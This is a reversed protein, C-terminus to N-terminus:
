TLRLVHALRDLFPAQDPHIRKRAEDLTLLEAGDIEWSACKPVAGAPLEGAFCHVRKKSKTYDIANLPILPGTVEVGTEERTERRAADELAEGEDPIGKPIGWPSTRNYAGSPHVLLVELDKGSKRYLLTGASQKV